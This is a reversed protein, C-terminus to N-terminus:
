PYSNQAKLYRAYNQVDRLFWIKRKGRQTPKPFNEDFYPSAPNLKLYIMSRSLGVLSALQRLGIIQIEQEPSLTTFPSASDVCPNPTMHNAEHM